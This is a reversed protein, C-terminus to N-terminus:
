PLSGALSWTHQSDKALTTFRCSELHATFGKSLYHVQLAFLVFGRM